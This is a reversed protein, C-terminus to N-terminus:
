NWTNVIGFRIIKINNNNLWALYIKCLYDFRGEIVVHFIVSMNKVNIEWSVGFFSWLYGWTPQSFHYHKWRTNQLCDIWIVALVFFKGHNEVAKRLIGAFAQITGWVLGFSAEAVSKLKMIMRENLVIYDQSSCREIFLLISLSSQWLGQSTCLGGVPKWNQQWM